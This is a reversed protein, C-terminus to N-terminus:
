SVTVRWGVLNTSLGQHCLKVSSALVKRSAVFSIKSCSPESDLSQRGVYARQL